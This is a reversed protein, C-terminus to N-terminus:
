DGEGASHKPDNISDPLLENLCFWFKAKQFHHVNYIVKALVKNIDDIKEKESDKWDQSAKGMMVKFESAFSKWQGCFGKIAQHGKRESQLHAPVGDGTMGSKEQLEPIKKLLKDLDARLGLDVSQQAKFETM